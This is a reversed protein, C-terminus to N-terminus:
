SQCDSVGMTTQQAKKKQPSYLPGDNARWLLLGDVNVESFVADKGVFVFRNYMVVSGWDQWM